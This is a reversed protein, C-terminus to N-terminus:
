PAAKGTAGSKPSGNVLRDLPKARARGWPPLANASHRWFLMGVPDRRQGGFHEVYGGYPPPPPHNQLHKSRKGKSKTDASPETGGPRSGIQGRNDSGAAPGGSGSGVAPGGDLPIPRGGASDDNSQALVQPAQPFVFALVAATAVSLALLRM